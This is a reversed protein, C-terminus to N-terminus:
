EAPQPLMSPLSATHEYVEINHVYTSHEFHSSSRIAKALVLDWL